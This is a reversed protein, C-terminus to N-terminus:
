ANESLLTRIREVAKKREIQFLDSRQKIGQLLDEYERKREPTKFPADSPPLGDGPLSKPAHGRILADISNSRESWMTKYQKPTFHWGEPDIKMGTDQVAQRMDHYPIGSNRALEKYEDNIRKKYEDYLHENRIVNSGAPPSGGWQTVLGMLPKVYSEKYTEWKEPSGVAHMYDNGGMSGAIIHTPNFESIKANFERQRDTKPGKLTEYWFQSTAGIKPLVLVDWGRREFTEKAGDMQNYGATVSDGFVLVRTQSHLDVQSKALSIEMIRLETKNKWERRKMFGHFGSFYARWIYKWDSRNWSDVPVAPAEKHLTRVSPDSLKRQLRALYFASAPIAKTVDTRDRLPLSKGYLKKTVGKWTGPMFQAIGLAGTESLSREYGSSERMIVARLFEPNLGEKLASKRILSEMEKTFGRQSPIYHRKGAKRNPKVRAM